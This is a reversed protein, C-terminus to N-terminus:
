KRCFDELAPLAQVLLNGTFALAEPSMKDITDGATHWWAVYDTGPPAPQGGLEKPVRYQFDILLVSPIGYASFSQHDDGFSSSYRYMRDSEGMDAAAKAFLEQLGKHSNGDRDFKIHKDGILDINVFAKLRAKLGNPFLTKDESMAKVFHRSGLLARKDNWNWDVSEEGDIFYLWVNVNPKREKVLVRALELLVAPGGGGDIAGVFHIDERGEKGDALKTDYHAGFCLIPGNVPDPGDIQVWLNRLLIREKDHMWEQRNPKLGLKELESCIYDATRGLAESGAPRPGFGVLKEVHAMAAKGDVPGSSGGCSVFTASVLTLLLLLLNTRAM